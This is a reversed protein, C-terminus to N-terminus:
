VRVAADDQPEVKTFNPTSNYDILIKATAAIQSQMDMVCEIPKEFEVIEVDAGPVLIRELGVLPIRTNDDLIWEPCALLFHGKGPEDPWEEVWGFIRRDGKLNLYVWL